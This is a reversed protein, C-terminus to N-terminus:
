WPKVRYTDGNDDRLTGYGDSDITGRLRDGNLNKMSTWGTSDIEGRYRSAPDYNYKERMEIERSDGSTWGYPESRIEYAGDWSVAASSAILLVSSVIIRKM